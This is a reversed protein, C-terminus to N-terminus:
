APVATIIFGLSELDPSLATVEALSARLRGYEPRAPAPQPLIAEIKWGGARFMEDISTRTFFRLHGVCLLGAYVYDFRGELLDSIIPWSGVNPVSAVIYGGDSVFARLTRLTTWPDVLHELVDGAVICEFREELTPLISDIEGVLVADLRTSALMAASADSEIGVVRISRSEKLAAGLGGEGCGLDLLTRCSLPIQAALDDRRNGRLPQFRHILADECLLVDGAALLQVVDPTVDFDAARAVLLAPDSGAPWRVRRSAPEHVATRSLESPTSYDLPTEVIQEAVPGLSAAPIAVRASPASDLHARLRALLGRAPVFMPDTVVAVYTAGSPLPPAATERMVVDADLDVVLRDAAFREELGGTVRPLYLVIM